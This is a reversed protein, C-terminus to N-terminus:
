PLCTTQFLAFFFKLPGYQAIIQLPIYFPSVKGQIKGCEYIALAM